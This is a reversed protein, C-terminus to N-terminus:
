AERLSSPAGPVQVSKLKPRALYVWLALAV